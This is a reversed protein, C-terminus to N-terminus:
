RGGLPDAEPIASDSPHLLAYEEREARWFFALEQQHGGGVTVQRTETAGRRTVKVRYSGSPVAVYVLPGVDSVELVSRGRGDSIALAVNPVLSGDSRASVIRLPFGRALDRMLDREELSVGGSVYRTGHADAQVTPPAPIAQPPGAPEYIYFKAGQPDRMMQMRGVEPVTIVPSVAGGGLQAIRAAGDELADVGVYMAWHPPVQAARLEEDLAMVGGTPAGDPRMWM